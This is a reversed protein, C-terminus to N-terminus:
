SGAEMAEREVAIAAELTEPSAFATHWIVVGGGIEDTLYVRGQETEEVFLSYGRDLDAVKRIAGTGVTM